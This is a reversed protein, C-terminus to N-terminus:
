SRSKGSCTTRSAEAGASADKKAVQSHAHATLSKCDMAAYACYASMQGRAQLVNFELLSLCSM